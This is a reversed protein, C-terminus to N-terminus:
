MLRQRGVILTSTQQFTLHIASVLNKSFCLLRPVLAPHFHKQQRSPVHHHVLHRRPRVVAPVVGHRGAGGGLKLLMQTSHQPPRQSLAVLQRAGGDHEVEKHAGM